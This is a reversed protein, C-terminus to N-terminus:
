TPRADRPVNNEMSSGRQRPEFARKLELFHKEYGHYSVWALLYTVVLVTLAYGFVAPAPSRPGFQQRMWPDGVLNFLVGHIVYMGFSYKGFSCVWRWSLAANLYGIVRNPAPVAAYVTVAACCFSLISYGYTECTLSEYDFGRTTAVGFAFLTVACIMVTTGHKQLWAYGDATRLLAAGAGGAALADMRCFTSDYIQAPDSGILVMMVRIFFAAAAIVCCLRLVRQTSLRHVLLPWILYFQEEVALSWFHGFGYLSVQAFNSLFLWL